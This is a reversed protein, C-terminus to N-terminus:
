RGWFVCFTKGCWWVGGDRISAEEGGGGVDCPGGRPLVASTGGSMEGQVKGPLPTRAPRAVCLPTYSRRPNANAGSANASSCARHGAQCAGTRCSYREGGCQGAAIGSQHGYGM